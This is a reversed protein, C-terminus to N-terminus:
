IPWPHGESSVELAVEEHKKSFMGEQQPNFAHLFDVGGGALVNTNPRVAM